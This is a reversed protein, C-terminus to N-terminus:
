KSSSNVAAEVATAIAVTDTAVTSVADDKFGPNDTTPNNVLGAAVLFTLLVNCVASYDKPLSTLGTIQAVVPVLAILSVWFGYNKTRLKLAKLFASM